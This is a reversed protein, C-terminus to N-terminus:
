ILFTCHLIHTHVKSSRPVQHNTIIPKDTVPLREIYPYEILPATVAILQLPPQETIKTDNELKVTKHLDKCCDKECTNCNGCIQDDEHWLNVDVLKEMCYHLHFTAGTASGLYFFTLLLITLKKM